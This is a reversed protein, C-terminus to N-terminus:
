ARHAGAAPAIWSATYRWFRRRRLRAGPLVERAVDRIEDFSETPESTPAQMNQPHADARRPHRLLGIVPNLALSVLSRWRDSPTERALGVIVIRGRPRLATRAEHLTAHLPMHHLSAVFVILDYQRPAEDIFPRQEIRVVSSSPFRDSAIAAAEPDPEIGVVAPLIASLHGLLNGTGCGVDAATTGGARRVARAHRLTFGAFADNHSWPHAANFRGLATRFALTQRRPPRATLESTTRTISSERTSRSDKGEPRISM